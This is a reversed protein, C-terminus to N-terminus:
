LDHERVLARGYLLLASPANQTGDLITLMSFAFVSRALAYMENEKHLGQDAKRGGTNDLSTQAPGPPPTPTTVDSQLTSSKPPITDDM